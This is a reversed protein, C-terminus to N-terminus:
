KFIYVDNKLQLSHVVPLWSFKARSNFPQFKNVGSTTLSISQHIRLSLSLSTASDHRVRQSGTPQLGGPEEMWPIRWAFISSHTAM